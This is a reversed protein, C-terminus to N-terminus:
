LTLTLCLPLSLFWPAARLLNWASAPTARILQGKAEFNLSFNDCAVAGQQAM